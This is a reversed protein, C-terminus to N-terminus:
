KEEWYAVYRCYSYGAPYVLYGSKNDYTFLLCNVTDSDDMTLNDTYKMVDKNDYLFGNIVSDYKEKSLTITKYIIYNLEQGFSPFNIARYQYDEANPCKRFFLAKSM